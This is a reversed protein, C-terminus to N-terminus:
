ADAREALLARWKGTAKTATIRWGYEALFAAVEDGQRGQLGSVVLISQPNALSSIEPLLYRLVSCTLNALILGFTGSIESLARNEFCARDELQNLASNVLAGRVGEDDIDVGLVHTAGLRLAVLSLVGTGCGVDLVDMELPALEEMFEVALGTSPHGGSGFAHSPALIITTASPTGSRKFVFSHRPGDGGTANVMKTEVLSVEDCRDLLTNLKVLLDDVVLDAAGILLFRHGEAAEEIHIKYALSTLAIRCADLGDSSLCRLVMVFRVDGSPDLCEAGLMEDIISM